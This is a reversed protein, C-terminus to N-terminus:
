RVEFSVTASAGSADCCRLSHSGPVPPWAIPEAADAEALFAGDLFWWLTGAGRARFALSSGDAGPHLVADPAPFLIAPRAAATERGARGARFAEIDPPWHEEARGDGDDDRHVECPPQLTTERIVLDPVAPPCHPGPRDGSVPCVPREEVSDPRAFWEPADAPVPLQRLVRFVLPAAAEIGVLPLAPRGDSNGIWAAVTHSPTVAITWADRFGASTGTKWAARRRKVDAYSGTEVFAREDGSLMDLTIWAAASSVPGSTDGAALSGLRAYAAALDALRVESNGLVVGLGNRERTRRTREWVGFGHLLTLFTDVGCDEVLDLAPINLSQVLAERAPVVGRFTGDFNGPAFGGYQRPVDPLALAPHLRGRDLAQAFAFPKLASGPSRWALAHDVQGAARRNAFDPSGVWALTERNDTRLVLLAGSDVGALEAVRTRLAEEALRQTALDLTTRVTGGPPTGGWVRSLSGCFHPAQFPLPLLRTPLPEADADARRTEDIMGLELMRGLVYSRRRRASEPHLDPRHRTPSQPLGALLAAEALSLDRARKGFYRRSAAEAGIFNGGFPARNLYQELIEDKTHCREMQTALFLEAFKTRLVRPRPQALRIVQTSLTSAGSIRRLHSANQWLARLLAVPDIGCHERFRKDEAAVIAQPLWEGFDALPVWLSFSGDAGLFVRLPEGHRDVVLTSSPPRRELMEEPFPRVLWLLVGGALAGGAIALVAAAFRRYLPRRSTPPRQEPM